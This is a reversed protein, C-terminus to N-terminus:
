PSPRTTRSDIDPSQSLSSQRDGAPIMVPAWGGTSLRAPETIRVLREGIKMEKGGGTIGLDVKSLYLEKMQGTKVLQLYRVEGVFDRRLRNIDTRFAEEAQWIGQKWGKAVAERWLTQETADRPLLLGSAPAPVPWTRRLYTRWNPAATAIKAESLIKMTQTAAALSQGDQAVHVTDSTVEVVPPVIVGDGNPLSVVVGNFNWLRDLTDAQRDLMENIEASRHALGHRAGLSFAADEMQTRQASAEKSAEASAPAAHLSQLAELSAGNRDETVKPPRYDWQERQQVCGSIGAIAVLVLLTTSHKSPRM